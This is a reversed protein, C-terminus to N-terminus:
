REEMLGVLNGDPDRLFAMWLEHDSMKATMHPEGHQKAGKAIFETQALQVNPVRFYLISNKGAENKGEPLTLMIRTNGAMLFALNPGAEFLYSLGLVDRYFGLAQQIDSVVLAIQGIESLNTPVPM